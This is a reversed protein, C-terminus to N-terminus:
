RRRNKELIAEIEDARQWSTSPQQRHPPAEVIPQTDKCYVCVAVSSHRLKGCNACYGMGAAVGPISPTVPAPEAVDGPAPPPSAQQRASQQRVADMQKWLSEIGERFEKSRREAEDREWQAQKKDPAAIVLLAAFFPSFFLAILFFGFGSRGKETACGSVLAAAILWLIVLWIWGSAVLAYLLLVLPDVDAALGCVRNCSRANTGRGITPLTAPYCRRTLASPIRSFDRRGSFVELNNNVDDRYPFIKWIGM